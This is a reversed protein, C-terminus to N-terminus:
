KRDRTRMRDVELRSWDTRYFLNSLAEDIASVMTLLDVRGDEEVRVSLTDIKDRIVAMM